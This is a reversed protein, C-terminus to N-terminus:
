MRGDRPLIALSEIWAPAAPNVIGVGLFTLLNVQDPHSLYVRSNGCAHWYKGDRADVLIVSKMDEGPDPPVPSQYPPRGIIVMGGGDFPFWLDAVRSGNVNGNRTWAGSPTLELIMAVHDLGGPTSGWEFGVLDGPQAERVNASTFLGRNRYDDFLASVWAFRTPIGCETLAMSQFAMCWATGRPLPYWSWTEDGGQGLRAREFNLVEEATTM